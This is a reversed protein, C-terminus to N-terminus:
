AYRSGVYASSPHLPGQVGLDIYPGAQCMVSQRENIFLQTLGIRSRWLKGLYCQFSSSQQCPYRPFIPTAALISSSATLELCVLLLIRRFNDAARIFGNRFPNRASLPISQFQSRVSRRQTLQCPWLSSPQISTSPVLVVALPHLPSQFVPM